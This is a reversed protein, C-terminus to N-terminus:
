DAFSLVAEEFNEIKKCNINMGQLGDKENNWNINTMFELFAIRIAIQREITCMGSYESPESQIYWRGRKGGRQLM